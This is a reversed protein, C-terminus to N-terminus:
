FTVLAPDAAALHHLENLSHVVRRGEGHRLRSVSAHGPRFFMDEALGLVHGVYANIVGGHCAVVVREGGHVALIGELAGVVRRRLEAGSESWPYVDWRREHVFRESAGRLLVAPLVDAVREGEPVERFVEVERLEDLVVVELGHRAAIAAGTDKARQLPSAYVAAIPESALADGLVEAQRRGLESLPPDTWQARTPRLGTPALQQGHRVLLLEGVGPMGMLFARELPSPRRAAAAEDRGPGDASTRAAGRPAEAHWAESTSGLSGGGRDAGPSAAARTM